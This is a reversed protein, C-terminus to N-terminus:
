TVADLTLARKRYFLEQENEDDDPNIEGEFMQQLLVEVKKRSKKKLHFRLGRENSVDPISDTDSDSDEIIDNQGLTAPPTRDMEQENTVLEIQDIDPPGKRKKNSQGIGLGLEKIKSEVASEFRGTKQLSYELIFAELIFAVFINLVIIVCTMHFIFFYLRSAKNTVFVFGSSLVHWQNVVTLEFLIVFAKLIDNFNNNCYHNRYFATNNLKPNGCFMDSAKTEHYGHYTILDHFIEMGVIAFMYYLVFLVGGYTAMSPGINMITMLIVKFRKISVFIKILRMVRLVLLLDLTSLEEGGEGSGSEVATAIVAGFIVVFDFKHRVCVKVIYSAKSNYINPIKKELFTQREQVETVPVQLLNILNLFDRKSIHGTGDKDLIVMLLEIREISKNPLVRKMITTWVTKTIIEEGNRTVNLIKFAQRLKRRKGFVAERIENKLNNRYNNYIAALVISMFVYLCIILYVGFYLAFWNSEDYAPMMVDPNNATTVLVYLDWISDFYNKFYADGNPYTLSQRRGFLKLALLAFLFVSMMFLILVNLIEPVTRRINRFARRIQRGDSFNIILLSRLPRSWRVPNSDPAENVWIVYCIMDIITLTIIGIVMINKTDRWFISSRSFYACHIVRAIFLTLCFVEILMTGWYPLEWGQRTPKEFLALSLNLLICSYLGWRLYWKHYIIYSRVHAPDTKYTFNRGSEADKILTEALILDEETLHKLEEDKSTHRKRSNSPSPSDSQKNTNDKVLQETSINTKIAETPSLFVITSKSENIGTKTSERLVKEPPPIKLHEIAINNPVPDVSQRKTETLNQASTVPDSGAKDNDTPTEDDIADIIIVPPPTDAPSSM